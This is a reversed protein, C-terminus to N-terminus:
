IVMPSKERLPASVCLNESKKEAAKRRQPLVNPIPTQPTELLAILERELAQTRRNQRLRSPLKLLESLAQQYAKRAALPQGMKKLLEARRKLYTEKRKAKKMMKDLRRNAKEYLGLAIEQELASTELSAVSGIRKISDNLNRLAAEPEGALNLNHARELYLEPTPNKILKIALAFDAEATAHQSLKVQTRARYLLGLPQDPQLELFQDFAEHAENYSEMELFARGRSLFVVELSPDLQEAQAYDSLAKTFDGHNRYLEGRKLYLKADSPKALIQKTSSEIQEHLDGHGHCQITLALALSSIALYRSIAPRNEFM